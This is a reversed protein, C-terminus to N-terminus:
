VRPASGLRRPTSHSFLRPLYPTNSFSSAPAAPVAMVMAALFDVAVAVAGRTLLELLALQMEWVAETEVAAPAAQEVLPIPLVLIAVAVAVALM